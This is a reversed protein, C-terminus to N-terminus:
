YLNLRKKKKRACINKGCELDHVFQASNPVKPLLHVSNMTSVYSKCNTNMLTKTLSLKWQGLIFVIKEGFNSYYVHLSGVQYFFTFLLDNLPM